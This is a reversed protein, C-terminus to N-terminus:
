AAKRQPLTIRHQRGARKRELLSPLGWEAVDIAFMREDLLSGRFERRAPQKLERHFRALLDDWIVRPVIEASDPYAYQFLVLTWLLIQWNEGILQLVREWDFKGRTRYIIHVTDAGDFRERFTVFLKSALLEEAALVRSPVGVIETATAREIWSRDVTVVANSMGTILDVFHDSGRRAKALWVPDTVEIEFGDEQLHALARNVEEGPLFLDLDKTDRYIGTHRQLAFAGSVAYPVGRDNMLRLVKRFLAAQEPAFEPPRSSSVPLPKDASAVWDQIDRSFGTNHSPTSILAHPASRPSAQTAFRVAAGAM